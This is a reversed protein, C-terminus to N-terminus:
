PRADGARRSLYAVIVARLLGAARDAVETVDAHTLRVDSLGTARNTICSISAAECGLEAAVTVEHVTSMCAVDAGLAASMRVEAATEYTPGHSGMLTGVRMPVGATLAADILAQRLAPAYPAAVRRSAGRARLEAPTFLGRRGIFNIHDAAVMLDGARYEPHIAGVANTFIMTRAGLAHMVRVGFTVRDLGYGEYRHSRGALAVVPIGALRGIGLVGSHGPVTSRPWHPIEATPIRVADELLHVVGGLGSGLTLAVASVADSKRRVAALAEAVRSELDATPTEPAM